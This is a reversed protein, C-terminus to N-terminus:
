LRKYGKPFLPDYTVYDVIVNNLYYLWEANVWYVNKPNLWRNQNNDDYDIMPHIYPRGWADLPMTTRSLVAETQIEYNM